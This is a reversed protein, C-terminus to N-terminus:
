YQENEIRHQFCNSYALYVFLLLALIVVYDTLVVFQSYSISKLAYSRNKLAPHDVKQLHALVNVETQAKTENNDQTKNDNVQLAITKIM